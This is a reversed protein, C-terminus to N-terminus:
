EIDIIVPENNNKVIKNSGITGRLNVLPYVITNEGIITGPNLVANCGIKVNDGIISGLKYLGTDLVEGDIKCTIKSEKNKLNSVKVGAGLNVNSGVISDGVYNFHPVKSNAFIVSTKVESSNGVLVNKDLVVFNRIFAGPGIIVNECIILPGQLTAKSSIKASKNIWLPKNNECYSLEYEEKNLSDGVEYIVKELDNLIEWPYRLKLFYDRLITNKYDLM